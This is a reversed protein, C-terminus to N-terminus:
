DTLYFHVARDVDIGASEVKWAALAMALPEGMLNKSKVVDSNTTSM